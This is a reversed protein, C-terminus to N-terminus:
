IQNGGPQSRKRTRRTLILFLALQITCATMFLPGRFYNDLLVTRANKKEDAPYSVYEREGQWDPDKDSHRESSYQLLGQLGSM